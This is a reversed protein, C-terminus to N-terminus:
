RIRKLLHTYVNVKHDTYVNDIDKFYQFEINLISEIKESIEPIIPKLLTNLLILCNIATTCIVHAEKPKEALKAWPEENNIYQNVFHIGSEINAVVEKFRKRQYHEPTGKLIEKLESLVGENVECALNSEFNKELIKLTRSAINVFGNVLSNNFQEKLKSIDLNIDNISNNSRSAVFYRFSEIPYEFDKASIYNGKSKSLKQSNISLFGHVALSEPLKFGLLLLEAIWFIGHFNIIDKGIFHCIEYESNLSWVNEEIENERLHDELISIYGIPADFWVYFYKETGPIKVGFYPSERSIDWAKLEEDLWEKLKHKVPLVIDAEELWNLVDQRFSNINLFLQKNRKLIPTTDSLVSYPNLLDTPSYQKGCSECSDGYQHETSCFKCTGRIYRDSLFQNKITDYYQEIEVEEIYKNAREFLTEINKQNTKTHTTGFRDFSIQFKEYCEKHNKHLTQILEEETINLEQAKLSIATGHADSGSIFIPTNGALKHFRNWIDAQIAEYLHGLHIEGNAYPLATTILIRRNM